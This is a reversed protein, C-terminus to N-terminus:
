PAKKSEAEERLELFRGCRVAFWLRTTPGRPRGAARRSALTELLCGAGRVRYPNSSMYDGRRTLFTAGSFGGCAVVASLASATAPQGKCAM